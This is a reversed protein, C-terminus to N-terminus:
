PSFKGRQNYILSQLEFKIPKWRFFKRHLTYPVIKIILIQKSFTTISPNLHPRLTMQVSHDHELRNRQLSLFVNGPNLFILRITSRSGHRLLLNLSSVFAYRVFSIVQTNIYIKISKISKLLMHVQYFYLKVSFYFKAKSILLWM